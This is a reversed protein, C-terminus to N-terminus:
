INLGLQKPEDDVPPEYLMKDYQDIGYKAAVEFQMKKVAKSMKYPPYNKAYLSKYYPLLEPYITELYPLFYDRASARMTLIDSLFYSVGAEAAARAVADMHAETDTIKPFVPAMLVATTIGAASLKSIMDFRRKITCTTPELKRTLEEDTSTITVVVNLFLEKAFDTLLDLDDLIHHSKTTLVLPTKYERFVEIMQRTIRYQREIPQYPDTVTGMNVLERKWSKRGLEKRLVEPANVKALVIHQFMGMPLQLYEHSARAYCYWCDHQCGRYPNAGWKFPLKPINLKYLISKAINERVDLKITESDM